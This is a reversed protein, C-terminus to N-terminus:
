LLMNKIKNSRFMGNIKNDKVKYMPKYTAGDYMLLIGKNDPNIKKRGKSYVSTNIGDCDKEIVVINLGNLVVDSHDDFTHEVSLRKNLNNISKKTLEDDDIINIDLDNYFTEVGVSSPIIKNTQLIDHISDYFSHKSEEMEKVMYSKYKNIGTSSFVSGGKQTTPKSKKEKVSRYSDKKRFIYYRNLRTNEYCQINFENEEDYYAKANKMFKKTEDVSEYKVGYEFFDRHMEFQRSFLDTEVLELDCKKLLEQSIFKGDVLFETVHSGEVQSIGNFVDIANGIGSTLHGYRKIIEFLVKKDGKKDTYHVTHKDKDKLLEIIRKSDFTTIILFGGPKLYMNVNTCFNNWTIENRLFFHVAFQCNLRDFQKRKPGFFRELMNKNQNSMYGIAKQQDSPTLLAGVDGQVWFYQPFAEHTKRLRKYRSVAGDTASLLANSDIDIGVYYDIKCYYFKMIDGGKGCALDLISLKRGYEYVQNCYTYIINSKIWNHFNRYPKALFTKIQYYNNEKRESVILSHDIKNRLNAMHRDFSSDTALITIDKMIFPNIISRWIRNAVNVYNGYRKKHLMVSETKDLRTRVPMWRFEEPVDPDHNYYFEVVSNDQIINGELDRVQGDTLYLHAVHKNAERQFLVPKEEGRIIAGVHLYCIRYKQWKIDARSNDYVSLPDTTEKNKEFKVFFDITNKTPEKWKYEVLKNESSNIVYSQQMPHLMIGDLIYPSKTKSDLVYKTWTLEMFKFVENHQAGSVPIFYKRRILPVYNDIPLDHNLGNIYNDIQDRHHKKIKNIDYKGKYDEFKYGMQDSTVFCNTIIDDAEKLRDMLAVTKLVEKGGNFMCDFALFIFRNHKQIFILEGDLLSNNYKTLKGKLELGIYKVHLNCSIFYVKNNHILLFHREGDAKDTVAYKNPLADIVHQIELSVPKRTCLHKLTNDIGFLKSYADIVEKSQTETIINNTQQIIKICDNVINYVPELSGKKKASYEIELEYGPVSNELLNIDNSTKVCTLDLKLVNDKTDILYMTARQKYRFIVRKRDLESLKKLEDVESESAEEERSLRVRFNFDNVDYFEERTKKMLSVNKNKLKSLIVQFIVHNRRLHINQMYKNIDSENEVTLRFTEMTKQKSYAIDLTNNREVRINKDNLSKNKMFKLINIFRELGFSNENQRYNYFMIEFEDGTKYKDYVGKIGDRDKKNLLELFSQHSVKDITAM